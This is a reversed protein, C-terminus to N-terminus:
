FIGQSAFLKDALLGILRVSLWTSSEMRPYFGPAGVSIRQRFQGADIGALSGICVRWGDIGIGRDPCNAPVVYLLNCRICHAIYVRYYPGGRQSNADWGLEVIAARGAFLVAGRFHEEGLYSASINQVLAATCLPIVFIAFLLFGLSPVLMGLGSIRDSQIASIQGMTFFTLLLAYPVYVVLAIILFTLFRQRYLRFTADLIDGIGMPRLELAKMQLFRRFLYLSVRSSLDPQPLVGKKSVTGCPVAPRGGGVIAGEGPELAVEVKYIRRLPHNDLGVAIFVPAARLIDPFFRRM